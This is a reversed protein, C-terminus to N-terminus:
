GGVKEGAERVAAAVPQGHRKKSAARALANKCERCRRGVGRTGPLLNDGSFPHGHKCHTLRKQWGGAEGRVVNQQQTVLELHAPNCCAPNRCLHDTVLRQSVERGTLHLAIRHASFPSHGPIDFKGYGKENKAGLWPWCEDPGRRDVRSWFRERLATPIDSPISRIMALVSNSGGNANKRWVPLGTRPSPKSLVTQMPRVRGAGDQWITIAAIRIFGRRRMGTQKFSRM